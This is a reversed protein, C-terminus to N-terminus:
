AEGATPAPMSATLDQHGPLHKLINTISKNTALSHMQSHYGPSSISVHPRGRRKRQIYKNLAQGTVLLPAHNTTHPTKSPLVAQHVTLAHSQPAITRTGQAQKERLTTSTRRPKVFQLDECAMTFKVQSDRKKSRSTYAGRSSKCTLSFTPMMICNDLNQCRTDFM